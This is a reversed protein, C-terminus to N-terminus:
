LQKMLLADIEIAFITKLPPRGESSNVGWSVSLSFVGWYFIPRILTSFQNQNAFLIFFINGSTSISCM